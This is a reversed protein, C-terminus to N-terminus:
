IPMKQFRYVTNKSFEERFADMKIQYYMSMPSFMLNFIYLMIVGIPVGKEKYAGCEGLLRIIEFRKLFRAAADDCEKLDQPNAAITKSIASHASKNLYKTDSQQINSPKTNHNKM